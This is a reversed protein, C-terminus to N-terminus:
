HLYCSSLITVMHFQYTSDWTHALATKAGYVQHENAGNMVQLAAEIIRVMASANVPNHAFVGGSPNVPFHGHISTIGKEVWTKAKGPPSINMAELWVIEQHAYATHIEAVDIQEYPDYIEAARVAKYAAKACNIVDSLVSDGNHSDGLAFSMAKIWAPNPSARRAVNESSIILAAAACSLSACMNSTLPPKVMPSRLVDDPSLAHRAKSYPNKLANSLMRAATIAFHYPSLEPDKELYYKAQRAAWEIEHEPLGYFSPKHGGTERNHGNEFALCLINDFLGQACHYFATLCVSSGSTGNTHVQIIPIDRLGICKALQRSTFAYETAMWNDCGLVLADIQGPNMGASELAKTAAENVMKMLENNNCNDVGKTQGTGTIAVRRAM